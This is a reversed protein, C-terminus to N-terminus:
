PKATYDSGDVERSAMLLGDDRGIAINSSFSSDVAGDEQKRITKKEGNSSSSLSMEILVLVSLM